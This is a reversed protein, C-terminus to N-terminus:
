KSFRENELLSWLGAHDLMQNAMAATNGTAKLSALLDQGLQGDRLRGKRRGTPDFDGGM